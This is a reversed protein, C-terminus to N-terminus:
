KQQFCITLFLIWKITQQWSADDIQVHFVCWCDILIKEDEHKKLCSCIRIENIITNMTHFMWCCMLFCTSRAIIYTKILNSKEISREDISVIKNFYRSISVEWEINKFSFLFTCNIEWYLKNRFCHNIFDNENSSM